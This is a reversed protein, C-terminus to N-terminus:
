EYLKNITGAIYQTADEPTASELEAVGTDGIPYVGYVTDSTSMYSTIDTLLDISAQWAPDSEPITNDVIIIFDLSIPDESDDTKLSSVQMGELCVDPPESCSVQLLPCSIGPGEWSTLWDPHARQTGDVQTLAGGEIQWEGISENFIIADNRLTLPMSEWVPRGSITDNSLEYWGDYECSQAMLGFTPQILFSNWYKCPAFFLDDV